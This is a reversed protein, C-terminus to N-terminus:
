GDTGPQRVPAPAHWDGRGDGGRKGGKIRQRERKVFPQDVHHREVFDRVWAILAEPMPAAEVLDEGEM